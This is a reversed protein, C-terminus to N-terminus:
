CYLRREARLVATRDRNQDADEAVDVDGLVRDLVRERLRALAPRGVAYGRAGGAPDDGGRAVRRDVLQAALCRALVTVRLGRQQV